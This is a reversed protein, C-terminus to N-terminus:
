GNAAPFQVLPARVEVPRAPTFINMQRPDENLAYLNNEKDRGVFMHSFKKDQPALVSKIDFSTLLEVRDDKPKIDFRLIISRTAIAPTDLDYINALVKRMEMEFADLVKGHCINGINITIPAEFEEHQEQMGQEDDQM